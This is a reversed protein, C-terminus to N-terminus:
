LNEGLTEIDIDCTSERIGSTPVHPLGAKDIVKFKGAFAQLGMSACLQSNSISLEVCDGLGVLHCFRIRLTAGEYLM